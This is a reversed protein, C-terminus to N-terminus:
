QAYVSEHVVEPAVLFIRVWFFRLVTVPLPEGKGVTVPSEVFAEGPV